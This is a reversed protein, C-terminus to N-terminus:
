RVSLFQALRVRFSRGPYGFVRLIFAFSLKCVKPAQRYLTPMEESLSASFNAIGNEANDGGHSVGLIVPDSALLAHVFEYADVDAPSLDIPRM